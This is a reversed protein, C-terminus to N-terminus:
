EDGYKEIIDKCINIQAQHSEKMKSYITDWNEIIMLKQSLTKVCDTHLTNHRIIYFSSPYPEFQVELEDNLYCKQTSFLEKGLESVKKEYIKNVKEIIEDNKMKDITKRNNM